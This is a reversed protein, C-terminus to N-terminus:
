GNQTYAYSAICSHGSRLSCFAFCVDDCVCVVRLAQQQEYKM